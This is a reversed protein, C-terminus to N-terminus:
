PKAIDMLGRLRKAAGTLLQSVRCESVGTRESTQRATMDQWYYHVAEGERLTLRPLLSHLKQAELSLCCATFPDANPTDDAIDEHMLPLSHFPIHECDILEYGHLIEGKSFLGTKRLDEETAKNGTKREIESAVRRLRFVTRALSSSLPSRQRMEDLMAGRIRCELYAGLKLNLHPKYLTLARLAGECGASLMEEVGLLRAKRYASLALFRIQPMIRDVLRARESETMDRWVKSGAEFDELIDDHKKLM